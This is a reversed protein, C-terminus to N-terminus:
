ITPVMKSLHQYREVPIGAKASIMVAAHHPQIEAFFKELQEDSMPETDWYEHVIKQSDHYHGSEEKLFHDVFVGYLVYEALNWSNALAELWEKGSISELKQYLKFVNDRKWTVVQAIYGPDPYVNNPIGLLKNAAQHGKVHAPADYSHERFLRVLGSRIFSTELNFPRIFTVDSDVFVLVDEEVCQASSIKVIQQVIWNRLPLSKFSFWGNKFGSIRQIWWPLLSQVIHIKTYPSELQRFLELDRREVIIHHTVTPSVFQQISWSLLRCREFDPAYSPTVIAFDFNKM